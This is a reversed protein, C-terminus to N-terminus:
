NILRKNVQNSLAMLEQNSELSARHYEDAERRAEGLQLELDSVRKRLGNIETEAREKSSSLEYTLQDIEIQKQRPQSLFFSYM